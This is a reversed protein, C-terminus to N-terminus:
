GPKVRRAARSLPEVIRLLEVVDGAAVTGHRIAVVQEARVKRRADEDAVRHMVDDMAFYQLWVADGEGAVASRILRVALEESRGVIPETGDHELGARVAREVDRVHIALHQLM